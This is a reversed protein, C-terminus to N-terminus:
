DQLVDGAEESHDPTEVALLARVAATLYGEREDDEFEGYGKPEAEYVPHDDGPHVSATFEGWRLRLYGIKRGDRFVDYQEPIARCTMRLTCGAIELDAM